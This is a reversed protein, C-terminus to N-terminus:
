IDGGGGDDISPFGRGVKPQGDTRLNSSMYPSDSVGDVDPSPSRLNVSDYKKNKLEGEQSLGKAGTTLTALRQSDGEDCKPDDWVGFVANKLPSGNGDVKRVNARVLEYLSKM